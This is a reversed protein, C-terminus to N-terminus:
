STAVLREAVNLGIAIVKQAAEASSYGKAAAIADVRAWDSPSLTVVRTLCAARESATPGDAWRTYPASM